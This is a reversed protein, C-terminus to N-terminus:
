MTGFILIVLFGESSLFTATLNPNQCVRRCTNRLWRQIQCNIWFSSSFGVLYFINFNILWLTIGIQKFITSCQVYKTSKSGPLCSRYSGKQKGACGFGKNFPTQELFCIREKRHLDRKLLSALDNNVINDCRNHGQSVSPIMQLGYLCILIVLM